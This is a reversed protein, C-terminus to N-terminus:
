PENRFNPGTGWRLKNRLTQYYSHGPVKVLGFAVPAKRVTVHHEATLAIVEQGDLILEAGCSGPRMVITYVKTASEVVPRSTLSHPCIPTLVFAALEQGLIPGGASLNHATSGVPTSIILGDGSIGSAQEGDVLLDFDLLRFPPGSRIVVENLGLCTRSKEPTGIECEYMLHHTVRYNGAVVQPLCARLEDPSLDALFGLKGLNIGLVPVQIYGMQRAARLIAGDGGLVLALDAGAHLDKRQNLDFVAIECHKELFPLLKVAEEKVGARSGNGLVFIRM